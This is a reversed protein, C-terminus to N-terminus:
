GYFNPPPRRTGGGGAGANGGVTDVEARFAAIARAAESTSDAPMRAKLAARM